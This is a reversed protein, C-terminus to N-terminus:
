SRLEAIRISPHGGALRALDAEDATLIVGGGREYAVAVVFADVAHASDMRARALLAGAVRASQRTVDVVALADRALVADIAADFRPGRYLEALVAASVVVEAAERRAAVLAAAVVRRRNVPGNALASLAESDLILPRVAV